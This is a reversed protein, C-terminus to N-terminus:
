LTLILFTTGNFAMHGLIAVGLRGTRHTFVALLVGLGILAPAQLPQFHILGFLMASGVIGAPVGFRASLARLVVGRFFVEEVFPGALIVIMGFLVLGAGTALETFQQAPDSLNELREPALVQVPLYILWILVTQCFIGFVLGLPVDQRFRFRVGLERILGRGHRRSVWLPVGLFGLWLGFMGAIRYGLSDRHSGGQMWDAWLQLTIASAAYAVVVGLVIHRLGWQVSPADLDEGPQTPTSSVASHYATCEGVTVTHLLLRM